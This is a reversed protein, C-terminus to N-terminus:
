SLPCTLVQVVEGGVPTIDYRHPAERVTQASFEALSADSRCTVASNVQSRRLREQVLFSRLDISVM